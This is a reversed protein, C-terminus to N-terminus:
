ERFAIFLSHEPIHVKLRGHGQYHATETVAYTNPVSLNHFLSLLAFDSSINASARLSISTRITRSVQTKSAFYMNFWGAAPEEPTIRQVAPTSCSMLYLSGHSSDTM